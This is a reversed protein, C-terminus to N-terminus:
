DDTRDNTLGKARLKSLRQPLDAAVKRAEGPRLNRWRRV